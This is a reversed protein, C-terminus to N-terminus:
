QMWKKVDGYSIPSVKLSAPIVLKDKYAMISMFGM